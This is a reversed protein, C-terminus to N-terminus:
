DAVPVTSNAIVMSNWAHLLVHRPGAVTSCFTVSSIVGPARAVAPGPSVGSKAPKSEVTKPRMLSVDAMPLPLASPRELGILTGSKPQSKSSSGSDPTNKGIMSSKANTPPIMKFKVGHTSGTIGSFIMPSALAPAPLRMRTKINPTAIDTPTTPNQNASPM